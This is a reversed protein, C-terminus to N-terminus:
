DDYTIAQVMWAEHILGHGLLSYPFWWTGDDGFGPGRSDKCLLGTESCGLVAVAHGDRAHGSGPEPHVIEGASLRWYAATVWFGMVVPWGAALSSRWSQPQEPQQLEQYRPPFHPPGHDAIRRNEADTLAAVTPATQAGERTFPHDHLARRCIGRIAAANLGDRLNLNGLHHPSTRAHYYNFLVSLESADGLREDIAEMAVTVAASVCCPVDGQDRAPFRHELMVGNTPLDRLSAPSYLLDRGDFPSPAWGSRSRRVEQPM